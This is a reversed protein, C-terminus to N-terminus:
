CGCLILAGRTVTAVVIFIRREGRGVDRCEEGTYGAGDGGGDDGRGRGRVRCGGLTDRRCNVMEIRLQHVNVCRISFTLTM